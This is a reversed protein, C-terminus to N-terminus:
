AGLVHNARTIATHRLLYPYITHGPCTKSTGPQPALAHINMRRMLTGIQRRGVLVSEKALERRLMRTGMFPHELHLKRAAMPKKILKM